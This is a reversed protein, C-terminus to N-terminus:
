IIDDDEVLTAVEKNVQPAQTPEQAVTTKKAEPAVLGDWNAIELAVRDQGNGDKYERHSLEAIFEGGMILSIIMDQHAKNSLELEMEPVKDLVTLIRKLRALGFDYPKKEASFLPNFVKVVTNTGKITLDLNLNTGGSNSLAFEGKTAVLHYTGPEPLEFGGDVKDPINKFNLKM